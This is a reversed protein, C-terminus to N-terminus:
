RSTAASGRAENSLFYNSWAWRLDDIDFRGTREDYAAKDLAM